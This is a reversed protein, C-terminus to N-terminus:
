PDSGKKSVSSDSSPGGTMSRTQYIGRRQLSRFAAHRVPRLHRRVSALMWIADDNAQPVHPSKPRLLWSLAALLPLQSRRGGRSAVGSRGSYPTVGSEFGPTLAQIHISSPEQERGPCPEVVLSAPSKSVDGFTRHSFLRSKVGVFGPTPTVDKTPSERAHAITSFVYLSSPIAGGVGAVAVGDYRLSETEQRLTADSSVEVEPSGCGAVHLTQLASFLLGHDEGGHLHCCLRLSVPADKPLHACTKSGTTSADEGRGRSGRM